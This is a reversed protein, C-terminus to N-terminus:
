ELKVHKSCDSLVPSTAHAICCQNGEGISVDLLTSFAKEHVVIKLTTVFKKFWLMDQVFSSM